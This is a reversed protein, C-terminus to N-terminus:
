VSSWALDRCGHPGLPLIKQGVEALPSTRERGQISLALLAFACGRNEGQFLPKFLPQHVEPQAPKAGAVCAAHGTPLHILLVATQAPLHHEEVRARETLPRQLHRRTRGKAGFEAEDRAIAAVPQHLQVVRFPRQLAEHQDPFKSGIAAGAFTWRQL